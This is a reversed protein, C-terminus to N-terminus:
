LCLLFALLVRDDAVHFAQLFDGVKGKGVFPYGFVRKDADLEVLFFDDALEQCHVFQEGDIVLLKRQLADGYDAVDEDEGGEGAKGEDVHM